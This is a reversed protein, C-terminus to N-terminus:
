KRKIAATAKCAESHRLADRKQCDTNCYYSIRCTSCRNRAKAGCTACIKPPLNFIAGEPFIISGMRQLGQAKVFESESSFLLHKARPYHIRCFLKDFPHWVFLCIIRGSVVDPPLPPGGPGLQEWPVYTYGLPTAATAIERLLKKSNIAICWAGTSRPQDQERFWTSYM